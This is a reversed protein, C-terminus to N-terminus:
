PNAFTERWRDLYAHVANIIAFNEEIAWVIRNCRSCLLDRVAGTVHDHDVSLRRVRGSHLVVEGRRCIACRGGQARFKADYEALTLGYERRLLQDYAVDRGAGALYRRRRDTRICDKCPKRVGRTNYPHPYFDSRPKATQCRGCLIRESHDM